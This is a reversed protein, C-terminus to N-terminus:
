ARNGAVRLLGRFDKGLEVGAEVTAHGAAEDGAEDQADSWISLDEGGVGAMKRGVDVSFLDGREGAGQGEAEYWTDFVFLCSDNESGVFGKGQEGIAHEFRLVGGVFEKTEVAQVGQESGVGGGLLDGFGGAGKALFVVDGDEGKGAHRKWM